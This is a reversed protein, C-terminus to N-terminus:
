SKVTQIMICIQLTGGGCVLGLTFGATPGLVGGGEDGEWDIEADLPRDLCLGPLTPGLVGGEEWLFTLPGFVGGNDLGLPGLVGDGELGLTDRLGDGRPGRVGGSLGRLPGLVGGPPGRVGLLLGACESM